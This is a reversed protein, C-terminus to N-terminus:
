GLCCGCLVTTGNSYICQSDGDKFPMESIEAVTVVPLVGGGVAPVAKLTDLLDALPKAGTAVIKLALSIRLSRDAM